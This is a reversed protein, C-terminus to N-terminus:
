KGSAPEFGHGLSAFLGELKALPLEGACGAGRSLTTLRITEKPPARVAQEMM